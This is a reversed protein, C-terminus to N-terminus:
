ISSIYYGYMFFITNASRCIHRRLGTGCSKVGNMMFYFTSYSALYSYKNCLHWRLGVAREMIHHRQLWHQGHNYLVRDDMPNNDGKTLIYTEEINRPEHVKAVWNLNSSSEHLLLAPLLWLVVSHWLQFLFLVTNFGTCCVPWCFKIIWSLLKSKRLNGNCTWTFCRVELM